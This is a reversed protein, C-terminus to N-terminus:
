SLAPVAVREDEREREREAAALAADIKRNGTMTGVVITMSALVGAGVLFPARPGAGEALWGGLIAGTPAACVSVLRSAAGVRGMLEGPVIAQRVSPGLVVTAGIGAGCLASCLGAEIVTSSLGEGLIGLAEILATVTLATGTGLARGLRPGVTSGLLGGVSEITLLLGYGATGAHLVDHAFVVLVAAMGSFALNGVAPRLALGLLVRNRVLYSAGQKAEALLSGKPPAPKPASKPLSRIMLSSFLFSVADGLMPVTRGLLFLTSGVPPGAFDAAALETSQLRSNAAVLVDQDRGLLDPLYAMSATDFLLSGVGLLFGLGLLLPVGLFGLAAGLVAAALLVARCLDAIWM